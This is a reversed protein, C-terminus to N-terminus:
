LEVNIKEEYTKMYLKGLEILIKYYQKALNNKREFVSLLTWVWIFTFTASEAMPNVVGTEFEKM